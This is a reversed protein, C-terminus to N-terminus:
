ERKFMKAPGGEQPHPAHQGVLPIFIIVKMAAFQKNIEEIVKSHEAVQQKIPAVESALNELSKTLESMNQQMVPLCSVAALINAVTEDNQAM